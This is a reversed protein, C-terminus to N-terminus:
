DREPWHWTNPGHAEDHPVWGLRRGFPYGDLEFAALQVQESPGVDTIIAAYEQGSPGVYHVNRALTPAPMWDDRGDTLTAPAPDTATVPTTAAEPASSAEPAAPAPDATQSEDQTTSEDM